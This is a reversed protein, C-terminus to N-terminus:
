LQIVIIILFRGSGVDTNIIDEHTQATM